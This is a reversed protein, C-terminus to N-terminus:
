DEKLLTAWSICFPPHSSKSHGVFLSLDHEVMLRMATAATHWESAVLGSM